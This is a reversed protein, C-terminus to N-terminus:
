GGPSSISTPYYYWGELGDAPHRVMGGGMPVPSSVLLGDEAVADNFLPSMALEALRMTTSGGDHEDVGQAIACVLELFLLEVSDPIPVVEADDGLETWKSRYWLKLDSAAETPTPHLELRLRLGGNEAQEYVPAAYYRYPGAPLSVSERLAALERLSVIKFLRWGPSVANQPTVERGFDDPPYCYPVGAQLRLVVPPRVLWNWEHMQVLRRGAYNCLSIVPLSPEGDLRRQVYRSVSLVTLAM